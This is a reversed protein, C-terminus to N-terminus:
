SAAAESPKCRKSEIWQDLDTKSVRHRGRPHFRHAPIEGDSVLEWVYRDSLQLIKAVQRINYFVPTNDPM